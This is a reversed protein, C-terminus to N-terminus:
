NFCDVFLQEVMDLVKLSCGFVGGGVLYCMSGVRTSYSVVRLVLNILSSLFDSTFVMWDM